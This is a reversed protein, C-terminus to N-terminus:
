SSPMPRQGHFAYDEKAEVAFTPKLNLVDAMPDLNMWAKESASYHCKYPRSADKLTKFM